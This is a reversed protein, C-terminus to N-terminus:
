DLLVLLVQLDMLALNVQSVASELPEKTVKRAQSAM